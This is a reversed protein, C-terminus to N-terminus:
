DELMWERSADPELTHALFRDLRADLDDDPKAMAEALASGTPSSVTASAAVSVPAAMAAAPVQMAAAEQAQREAERAQRARALKEQKVRFAHVAEKIQVLETEAAHARNLAAALEAQLRHVM